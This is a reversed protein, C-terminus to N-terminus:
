GYSILGELNILAVKDQSNRGPVLTTETFKKETIASAPGAGRAGLAVLLMLNGFLSLSLAVFLM